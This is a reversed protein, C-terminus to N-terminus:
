CTKSRIHLANLDYFDYTVLLYFVLFDDLIVRFKLKDSKIDPIKHTFHKNLFTPTQGLNKLYKQKNNYIYVSRLSVMNSSKM